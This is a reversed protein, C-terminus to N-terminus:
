GFIGVCEPGIKCGRANIGPNFGFSAAISCQGNGLIVDGGFEHGVFSTWRANYLLVRGSVCGIFVTVNSNNGQDDVRIAAETFNGVFDCDIFHNEAVDTTSRNWQQYFGFKHPQGSDDCKLHNFWSGGNSVVNGGDQGFGQIFCHEIEADVGSTALGWAGGKVELHDLMAGVSGTMIRILDSQADPRTCGIISMDRIGNDKGSLEVAQFDEGWTSLATCRRGEGQLIVGSPLKVTRSIRLGVNSIQIIGGDRKAADAIARDLADSVDMGHEFDGYSTLNM